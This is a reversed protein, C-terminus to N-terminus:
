IDVSWGIKERFEEKRLKARAQKAWSKVADVTVGELNAIDKLPMGELIYYYVWKWQNPTLNERLQEWLNNDVPLAESFNNIPISNENGRRYNGDNFQPKNQTIYNEVKEVAKTEKRILDIMRNRIMFNFYTAMPGKDPQYSKYANWLAFLGETYFDENSDRIHLRHIYYHIRRENQKFIEEFTFQLNKHTM